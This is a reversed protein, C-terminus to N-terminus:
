ELINEMNLIIIQELMKRKYNLDKNSKKEIYGVEGIAIKIVKEPTKAM